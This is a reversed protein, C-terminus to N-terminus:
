RANLVITPCVPRNSGTDERLPQRNQNKLQITLRSSTVTVQGYSFTNIASCQMGFGGFEVRQQFFAGDAFTGATGTSEDQGLTKNIQRNLTKTAVPGTTAELIGSNQPGGQEPFTAFRADGVLSAHVDTALFVVNRARSRLFNLLRAREAAYGEYRDYPLLFIQQIPLSSIVVKWRATSRAIANTFRTYQRAGLLTRNPDNITALCAASVPQVFAPSIAALGNRRSQPATPALDPQGTQPNDCTHITPSGAKASRFSREDLHFVELNRGWRFSRYIGDRSTYTVPQYHRFAAVGAPYISRGPIFIRQGLANRAALTENPGFDNVFEHDDWEHYTGATRRLRQLNSIALNQRYKAWKEALTRALPFGLYIGGSFVGENVESDSYITDGLNINFHNNERAMAGYVAFNRDGETNYFPQSQGRARQADADGSWAFRITQNQTASPATRFTGIESRRIGKIFRYYFRTNAPLRTIRTQVTRDASSRAILLGLRFLPRFRANRAIQVVVPGTTDSRTWLMASSTGVESAGVGYTFGRVGASATAPLALALAALAATLVAIRARM